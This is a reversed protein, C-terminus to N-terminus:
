DYKGLWANRRIVFMDAFMRTSDTIANVRTYPCNIWHVPIEDVRLGHRQAIYLIEPDFGFDEITQRSFVIDAARQTFGKFGCQTDHFRTLGFMRLMLNFARGMNERYWVQHQEIESEPLARSAIVVDAGQEFRPWMKELEEIPTSEDADSFVRYAGQAVAMGHRVAFGKGRNPSYSELRVEPHSDRVVAATADTSGDDVVIIEYDYDQRDLYAEASELTARIRQAENYAPIILSLHVRDL